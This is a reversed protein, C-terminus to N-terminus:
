LITDFTHTGQLMREVNELMYIGCDKTNDQQPLSAAFGPMNKALLYRATLLLM